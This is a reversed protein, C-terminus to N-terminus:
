REPPWFMYVIEFIRHEPPWFVYYYQLGVCGQANSNYASEAKRTPSGEQFVSSANTFISDTFIILDSWRVTVLAVFPKINPEFNKKCCPAMFREKAEATELQEPLAARGAEVAAGLLEPLAACGAAGDRLSNACSSVVIAKALLAFKRAQRSRLWVYRVFDELLTTPFM